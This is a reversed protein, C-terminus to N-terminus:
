QTSLWQVLFFLIFIKFLWFKSKFHRIIVEVTPFPLGMDGGHINRCHCQKHGHSFAGEMCKHAAGTYLAMRVQVGPLIADAM